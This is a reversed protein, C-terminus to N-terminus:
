EVRQRSSEDHASTWLIQLDNLVIEKTSVPSLLFDRSSDRQFSFESVRIYGERTIWYAQYGLSKVVQLTRINGHPRPLIECVIFPRDQLITKRMGDLVDAEFDEVDIKVIDPSIHARQAYDDFREAQVLLRASNAKAGAQWGDPLLTGTSELDVNDTPPLFFTASGSRSSLALNECRIQHSLSNLEVNRVLGDFIQPVPEFAVVRIQPNTIAALLSYFGVNAGVDVFTASRDFFFALTAATEPEYGNLGRWFFVSSLAISTGKAIRLQKGNPLRLSVGDKRIRRELQLALATSTWHLPKGLGALLSSLVYNDRLRKLLKRSDIM